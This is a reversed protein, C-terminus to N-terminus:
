QGTTGIVRLRISLENNVQNPARNTINFDTLKIKFETALAVVDGQLRAARTTESAPTFRLTAPVTISRTVGNMTLNGTVQYNDGSTNRVSTTVFRIEPRADFNFWNVSRMHENRLPIGTDISAGNVVITGSGTKTQPNFVITGQINSTRGTFNELVTESEVTATNVNAQQPNIVFSRGEALGLGSM